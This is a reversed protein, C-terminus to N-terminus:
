KLLVSVESLNDFEFNPRLDYLAEDFVPQKTRNIWGVNFGFSKAGAADWSNGSVYLIKEKEFIQLHDLIEEYAKPEPKYTKAGEVSVTEEDLLSLGSYEILKDLMTQTGNSLIAIRLGIEDLDSLCSGVDKFTRLHLFASFIKEISQESTSLKLKKLSFEISKKTISEFNEYKKLITRTMAYEIQKQRVIALIDKGKGRHIKNAESAFSNMDFLTGYADFVVAEIRLGEVSREPLPSEDESTDQKRSKPM